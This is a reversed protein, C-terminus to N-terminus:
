SSTEIRVRRRWQGLVAFSLLATGLLVLSAPEPVNPGNGGGSADTVSADLSLLEAGPTIITLVDTISFPASAVAGKTNSMSFPSSSATFSSLPTATGLLTNSDDLYTKLSVTAAGGSFNGSFQSLWNQLGVPSTLNNESLTIVLTGGATSSIDASSLDLSPANAAVGTNVTTTFNGIAHNVVLPSTGSQFYSTGASQLEIELGAHAPSAACAVGGAAAVAALL